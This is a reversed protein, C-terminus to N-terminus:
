GHTTCDLEGPYVDKQVSKDFRGNISAFKIGRYQKVEGLDVGELTSKLSAHKLQVSGTMIPGESIEEPNFGRMASVNGLSNAIM